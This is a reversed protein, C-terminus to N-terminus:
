QKSDSAHCEHEAGTPFFRSINRLIDMQQLAVKVAIPSRGTDSDYIWCNRIKKNHRMRSLSSSGSYSISQTRVHVLLDTWTRNFSVANRTGNMHGVCLANQVNRTDCCYYYDGGPFATNLQRAQSSHIVALCVAVAVYIRHRM